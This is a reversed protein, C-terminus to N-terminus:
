KVQIVVDLGDDPHYTWAATYDGWSDVQRGDLARTSAMHQTVAGTVGLERLICAQDEVSLRAEEGSLLGGFQGATGAGDMVLTKGNDTITTGAGSPICTEQAAVLRSATSDGFYGLQWVVVAGAAAIVVAAVAILIWLRHRPKTSPPINSAPPENAPPDGTPAPWYNMPERPDPLTM